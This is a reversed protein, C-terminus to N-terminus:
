GGDDGASPDAPLACVINATALSQVRDVTDVREIDGTVQRIFELGEPTFIRDSELAIILTRQGGFEDRFREYTQYIPDDESIWMSIENDIRTFSVSPALAVAGLLILGSLVYRFRYVFAAVAASM